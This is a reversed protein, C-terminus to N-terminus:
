VKEFVAIRAQHEMEMSPNQYRSKIEASSHSSKDLVIKTPLSVTSNVLASIMSKRHGHTTCLDTKEMGSATALDVCIRNAYGKGFCDGIKHGAEYIIGLKCKLKLEKEHAGKL